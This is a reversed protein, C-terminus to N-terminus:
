RQLTVLSRNGSLTGPKVILGAGATAPSFMQYVRGNLSLPYPVSRSATSHVRLPASHQVSISQDIGTWESMDTAVEWVLDQAMTAFEQSVSLDGSWQYFSLAAGHPDKKFYVAYALINQIYKGEANLHIGDAYLDFASSYGPINGAAARQDFEYLVHGIPLIDVQKDPFRNRLAQTLTEHYSAAGYPQAWGASTTDVVRNWADAYGGDVDGTGPWQTFV